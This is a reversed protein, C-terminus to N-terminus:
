TIVCRNCNTDSKEPKTIPLPEDFNCYTQRHQLECILLDFTPKHEVEFIQRDNYEQLYKQLPNNTM